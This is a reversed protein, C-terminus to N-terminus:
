GLPATSHPLVSHTLMPSRDGARVPLSILRAASTQRFNVRRDRNFFFGILVVQILRASSPKSATSVWNFLYTRPFLYNVFLVVRPNERAWAPQSRGEAQDEVEESFVFLPATSHRGDVRQKYTEQAASRSILPTIADLRLQTVM